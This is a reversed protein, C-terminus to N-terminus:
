SPSWRSRAHAQSGRSPVLGRRQSFRTMEASLPCPCPQAPPCCCGRCLPEPDLKEIGGVREGCVLSQWGVEEGQAGLLGLGPELPAMLKTLNNLPIQMERNLKEEVCILAWSAWHSISSQRSDPPQQSSSSSIETGPADLAVNGGRAASIPRSCRSAVAASYNGAGARQLCAGGKARGHKEDIRGLNNCSSLQAPIGLVWWCRRQRRLRPAARGGREAAFFRTLQLMAKIQKGAKPSPSAGAGM